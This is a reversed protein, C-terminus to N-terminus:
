SASIITSLSEIFVELEVNSIVQNVSIYFTLQSACNDLEFNEM